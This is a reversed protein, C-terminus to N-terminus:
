PMVSTLAYDAVFMAVACAVVQANVAAGVGKAGARASLGFHTAVLAILAGFTVAKILGAFLDWPELGNVMSQVFQGYDLGVLLKATVSGSVLACANGFLVLLLMCLTMALVRPALLLEVVDLALIELADLQETVRMTALESAHSAGVRGSFMLGILVPGIERFTAFGAYWGVLDYVGYKEVYLAGQLVMIAGTFAATAVVVPLSDVGFAVMARVLEDRDIRGSVVRRAVRAGVITMGGAAHALALAGAGVFALASSAPRSLAEAM